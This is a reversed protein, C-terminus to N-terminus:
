KENIVALTAECLFDSLKYIENLEEERKRNWEDAKKCFKNYEEIYKAQGVIYKEYIM